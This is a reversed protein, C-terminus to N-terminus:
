LRVHTRNPTPQGITQPNPAAGTGDDESPAPACALPASEFPRPREVEEAHVLGSRGCSRVQHRDAGGARISAGAGERREKALRRQAFAQAFGVVAARARGPQRRRAPPPQDRFAAAAALGAADGARFTLEVDVVQEAHKSPAIVGLGVEHHQAEGAVMVELWAGGPAATPRSLGCGDASATLDSGPKLIEVRRQRQLLDFRAM